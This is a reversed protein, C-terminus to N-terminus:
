EQGQGCTCCTGYEDSIVNGKCGDTTCDERSVPHCIRCVFCYLLKSNPKNPRLVAYKPDIETYDGCDYKCEPCIYTREKKNVGFFKQVQAPKLSSFLIFFEWVVQAQDGDSSYLQSAPSDSLFERRTAIWNEEPLLFEHMELIKTTVELATVKLTKDVTHMIRNRLSRLSDFSEVFEPSLLNDAFTNHTTILDQADITRFDSFAVPKGGKPKPWTSPSGSILLYPSIDMIKSKVILEVGQQTIALATLLRQKAANWFSAEDGEVEVLYEGAEDFLKLFSVAIDWAFDFQAKGTDRFDASNPIGEIM